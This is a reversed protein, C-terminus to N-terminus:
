PLADGPLADGPVLRARERPALRAEPRLTGDAHRTEVVVREEDRPIWWRWRATCSPLTASTRITSM